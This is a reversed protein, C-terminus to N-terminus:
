SSKPEIIQKIEKSSYGLFRLVATPSLRLVRIMSRLEKIGIKEPERLHGSISAPTLGVADALQAQNLEMYGLRSRLERRFDENLYKEEYQRIRPVTNVEKRAAYSITFTSM